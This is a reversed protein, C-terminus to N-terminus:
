SRGADDRTGLHILHMASYLGHRADPHIVVVGHNATEGEHRHYPADDPHRDTHQNRGFQYPRIQIEIKGIKTVAPQPRQM